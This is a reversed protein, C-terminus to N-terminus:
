GIVSHVPATLKRTPSRRSKDRQDTGARERTERAANAQRRLVRLGERDRLVEWARAKGLLMALVPGFLQVAPLELQDAIGLAIAM